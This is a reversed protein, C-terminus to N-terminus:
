ISDCVLGFNGVEWVSMICYLYKDSIPNWGKQGKVNSNRYTGKLLSPPGLKATLFSFFVCKLMKYFCVRWALNM